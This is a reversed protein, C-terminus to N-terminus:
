LFLILFMDGIGLVIRPLIHFRNTFRKRFFILGVEIDTDLIFGRGITQSVKIGKGAASLDDAFGDM